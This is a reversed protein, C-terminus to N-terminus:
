ERVPFSRVAVKKKGGHTAEIRVEDHEGTPSARCAFTGDDDLEVARRNVTVQARPETVGRVEIVLPGRILTSGAPPETQVLLLPAQELAIIEDALQHRTAVIKKPDMETDAIVRPVVRRSLELARRRPNLWTAKPGLRRKVAATRAALLHLYEFDEISERQIEWRMSNIPGDSGPYIIHGDGPPVRETPPGFPDGRWSMLGYHLYGKLDAAFNVWHLVRTCSLPFDVLRNPNGYPRHALYYWFEGEGRRSEYADRWRDFHALKPVWVELAGSFDLTEIAEVRKLRPAARHVRESLGRWSEVNHIAPEDGVHILAKPLRGAEALHRELDRLLQPMVVDPDLKEPQGTKGNTVRVDRFVFEKSSWGGERHRGVHTIEIRDAAGAREFLEVYRDFRRYDFALKGGATRTVEILSWPTYAVNQRHAALNRAYRGLVAWHAESWPPVDHARAIRLPSFWNTVLLHREDPLVFPDVTLEVPLAARVEGAVVAVQGRYIGPPADKAVHVTLWVPQTSNAPVDIARDELLPDPVECPAARITIQESYHSNHEIPVFGVFNWTLKDSRITAKGDVHGLPTWEVRLGKLRKAARVAIQAPEYENRAARLRVSGPASPPKTERLVNAHPGVSWVFLADAASAPDAGGCAVIMTGVLLARM